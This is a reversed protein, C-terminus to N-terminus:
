LGFIDNTRLERSPVREVQQLWDLFPQAPLVLVASRNIAYM